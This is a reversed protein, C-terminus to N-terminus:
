DESNMKNELTKWGYKMSKLWNSISQKITKHTTMYIIIHCWKPMRAINCPIKRGEKMMGSKEDDEEKAGKRGSALLWTYRPHIGDRIQKGINSRLESM